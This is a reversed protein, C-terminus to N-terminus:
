PKRMRRLYDWKKSLHLQKAQTAPLAGTFFPNVEACGEYYVLWLRGPKPDPSLQILPIMVEVILNLRRRPPM